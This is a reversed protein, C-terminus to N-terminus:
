AAKKVRASKLCITCVYERSPGSPTQIKVRQLNPSFRRKTGRHSHSVTNGTTPGKGCASCKYAM